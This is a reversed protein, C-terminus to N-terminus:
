MVCYLAFGRVLEYLRVLKQPAYGRRDGMERSLNFRYLLDLLEELLRDWGRLIATM